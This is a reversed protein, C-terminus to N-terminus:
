TNSICALETLRIQNIFCNHSLFKSLIELWETEYMIEKDILCRMFTKGSHEGIITKFTM